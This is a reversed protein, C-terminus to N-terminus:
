EFIRMKSCELFSEDWNVSSHAIESKSGTSLLRGVSESCEKNQTMNQSRLWFNLSRINSLHVREWVPPHMAASRFFPFSCPMPFRYNQFFHTKIWNSSIQVTYWLWINGQLNMWSLTLNSSKLVSNCLTPFCIM